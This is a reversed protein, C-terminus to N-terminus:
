KIYYMLHKVPHDIPFKESNSPFMGLSLRLTTTEYINALNFM